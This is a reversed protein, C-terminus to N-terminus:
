SQLLRSASVVRGASVTVSNDILGRDIVDLDEAPLVKYTNSWDPVYDDSQFVDTKQQKLAYNWTNGVTVGSSSTTVGSLSTNTYVRVTVPANRKRTHMYAFTDLTFILTLLGSIFVLCCVSRKKIKM